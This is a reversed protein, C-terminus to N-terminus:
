ATQTENGAATPAVNVPENNEYQRLKERLQLRLKKLDERQSQTQELEAAAQRWLRGAEEVRGLRYLSDALHDLVVPDPRGLFRVAQELYKRADDFRGRKYLAWGLSDMYAANDPEVELALRIMAEARDLNRGQDVWMYGLDNNAPGYRPDIRLAELLTQETMQRQELREYLHALFYLAEPDGASVEKMQDLARVADASRNADEYIDVLASVVTRNDRQRGRAEELLSILEERRDARLYHRVVHQVVLPNEPEEQFLAKLAGQAAEGQRSELMLQVQLLRANVNFPDASLWAQLVKIAQPGAKKSLYQRFLALYADEYTPWDGVIKWLLQEAQADKSESLLTAVIAFQLQATNPGIQAAREFAARAAEFRKDAMAILGELEAALGDAQQESAQRVLERAAALKREQDWDARTLHDELLERYAPAFPPRQSVAQQLSARALSQRHQSEATRAVMYLKAATTDPSVALNQVDALRLRNRTGSRLLRWWLSELDRQAEPRKALTQIVLTAAQTTQGRDALMGFLRSVVAIDGANQKLLDRLLRDAEEPRGGANLVDALAFLISRDGPNKKLIARLADAIAGEQGSERYARKLLDLSAGSAGHRSVLRAALERAEGSKRLVLLLRVMHSQYEFNGPVKEAAARYHGLAAEHRGLKECLQGMQVHLVEPHNLLYNLEPNARIHLRNQLGELVASYQELAATDYGKQQLARALYLRVLTQSEPRSESESTLLALRFHEIAKEIESRGMYIRGLTFHVDLNDPELESAREMAVAALKNDGSLGLYAQGLAYHLDFSDPDSRIAKELLGVAKARQGDLQAARAQAYLQIAELPPPQSPQTDAPRRRLTPVPQIQDLTLLAESSPRTAPASVEGAPPIERRAACGGAMLGAALIWRWRARM